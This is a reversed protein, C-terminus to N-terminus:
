SRCIDDLIMTPDYTVPWVADDDLRAATRILSFTRIPLAVDVTRGVEVGFFPQPAVDVITVRTREITVSQGLVDLASGFSRQWLGYSKSIVTVPGQAGGGPEFPQRNSRARPHMAHFASSGVLPHVDVTPSRVITTARRIQDHGDGVDRRDWERWRDDRDCDQGRAEDDRPDYDHPDFDFARGGRLRM